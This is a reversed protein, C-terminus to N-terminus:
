VTVGLRHLSRRRNEKTQCVTDQRRKMRSDAFDVWSNFHIKWRRVFYRNSFGIARINIAFQLIIDAEGHSVFPIADRNSSIKTALTSHITFVAGSVIM